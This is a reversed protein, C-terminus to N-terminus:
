LIKELRWEIKDGNQCNYSDPSTTSIQSNVYFIWFNSSDNKVGNISDVISGSTSDQTQVDTKGKLTALATQGATCDLSISPITAVNGQIPKKNQNMRDLGVGILIMIVIIAIIAVINMLEFDNTKREPKEKPSISSAISKAVLSITRKKTSDIAKKAIPKKLEEKAIEKKSKARAIDLAVKKTKSQPTKLATKKVVKKAPM